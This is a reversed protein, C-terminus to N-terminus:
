KARKFTSLVIPDDDGNGPAFKTPREAGPCVWCIELRDGQLRYIGLARGEITIIDIQAPNTTPRLVYRSPFDKTGDPDTTLLKGGKRFEWISGENEEVWKSDQPIVQGQAVKCDPAKVGPGALLEAMFLLAFVTSM